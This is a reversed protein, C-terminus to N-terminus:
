KGWDQEAAAVFLAVALWELTCDVATCSSELEMLIKRPM